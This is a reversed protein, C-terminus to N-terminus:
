QPRRASTTDRTRGREWADKLGRGFSGLREYLRAKLHAHAVAREVEYPRAAQPDVLLQKGTLSRLDLAGPPLVVDDPILYFAGGQQPFYFTTHMMHNHERAFSQRLSLKSRSFSV